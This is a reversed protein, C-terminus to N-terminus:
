ARANKYGKSSPHNSGFKGTTWRTTRGKRSRDRNNDIVTGLFMHNPNVCAPNDCHHCVLLDSAFEGRWEAYAARHALVNKQGIKIRGYGSENLAGLWIWCGAEPVKESNNEIREKMSELDLRGIRSLRAAHMSCYKSNRKSTKQCAPAICPKLENTM